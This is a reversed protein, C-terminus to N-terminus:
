SRLDTDVFSKENHWLMESESLYSVELHQFM